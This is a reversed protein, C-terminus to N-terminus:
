WYDEKVIPQRYNISREIWGRNGSVTHSNYIKQMACSSSFVFRTEMDNRLARKSHTHSHIDSSQNLNGINRRYSHPTQSCGM